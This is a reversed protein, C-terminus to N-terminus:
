SIGNLILVLKYSPKYVLEKFFLVIKYYKKDIKANLYGRYM